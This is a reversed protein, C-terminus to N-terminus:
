ALRSAACCGLCAEGILGALRRHAVDDPIDHYDGSVSVARGDPLTRAFGRSMEPLSPRTRRGLGDTLGKCPNDNTSSVDFRYPRGGEPRISSNVGVRLLVSSGLDPYACVVGSGSMATALPNSQRAIQHLALFREEGFLSRPLNGIDHHGTLEPLRRVIPPIAFHDSGTAGSLWGLASSTGGDLKRVTAM